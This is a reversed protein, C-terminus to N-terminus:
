ASLKDAWGLKKLDDSLWDHALETAPCSGFIRLVSRSISLSLTTATGPRHMALSELEEDWYSRGDDISSFQQTLSFDTTSEESTPLIRPRRSLIPTRGTNSNEPIVLEGEMRVPLLQFLNLRDSFVTFWQNVIQEYIRLAAAYVAESRALLQDHTYREWFSQASVDRNESPWPDAIHTKGDATLQTLHRKVRDLDSPTLAISNGLRGTISAGHSVTDILDFTDSIKISMTNFYSARHLELALGWSIEAIGDTTYISLRRSDLLKSLSDDLEDKTVIWPWVRTRPLGRAQWDFWGASSHHNLDHLDSPLDMVKSQHSEGFYWSTILYPDEIAIGLTAINGDRKIRGILDFLNGLGSRWDEIAGYVQNGMEISTTFSPMHKPLWYWGPDIESLLLSSFGPDTSASSTMISRSLEEDDGNVAISVPIIWRDSIPILSEFAVDGEAISRAAFWERFVALTFDIAGDQEFVLRSDSLDRQERVNRSIRSKPVPNGSITTKVALAKLMSDVRDTPLGSDAFARETMRRVLDSSSPVGDDPNQRLEVGVMVAFLPRKTAESTAGSASSRVGPLVCEGAIKRILELSQEDTLLPMDVRTGAHKLRPLPRLSAIATSKPSADTFAVLQDLLNNAETIGLEDIGDVVVITGQVFPSAIDETMRNVYENLPESLQRANIFVPFPQSTDEITLDISKQLLRECALSKGSGQDGTLLHLGSEPLAVVDGVSQDDALATAVEDPVELTTWMRKTRAVSLRRVERLKQFRAPATWGRIARAAEDYIATRIQISLDEIGDVDRWKALEGVEALLDRTECDRTEAPLKFALLRQGANLCAHVENVVPRTTTEGILWVTIEAEAVKQLYLDIASESSAPTNEFLWPRAFPIDNIAQKAVQRYEMLGDMVSSIFVRLRSEGQPNANRELEKDAENM